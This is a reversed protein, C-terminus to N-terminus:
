QPVKWNKLLEMVENKANNRKGNVTAEIAYTYQSGYVIVWYEYTPTTSHAAASPTRENLVITATGASTSVNSHSLVTSHNGIVELYKPSHNPISQIQLSIFLDKWQVTQNPSITQGNPLTLTTDFLPNTLPNQNSTTSNSEMNEPNQTTETITANTKNAGQNLTSVQPSKKNSNPTNQASAISISVGNSKVGEFLNSSSVNANTLTVFALILVVPVVVLTWKWSVGKLGKIIALRRRIQSRPAGLSALSIIGKANSNYELQRILTQAYDKRENTDLTQLVLSDCSIEQDQHMSFVAYWMVPNFWHIILLVQALWNVLIDKRKYHWLEHLFVHRLQDESLSEVTWSPLLLHPRVLGYLSPSSLDHTQLLAIQNNINISRKSETFIDFVRQSNVTERMLKKSFKRNVFIMSMTLFVIGLVWILFLIAYISIHNSPAPVSVQNDSNISNNPSVESAGVATSQSSWISSTVVSNIYEQAPAVISGLPRSNSLNYISVPSAPTWPLVLSILVIIWLGYHIRAGLRDRFLLKILILGIILISAKASTGLVWSFLGFYDM